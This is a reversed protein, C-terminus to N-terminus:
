AMTRTLMTMNKAASFPRARGGILRASTSLRVHRRRPNQPNVHERTCARVEQDAIKISCYSSGMVMSNKGITM